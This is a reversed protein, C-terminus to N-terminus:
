DNENWYSQTRLPHDLPLKLRGCSPTRCVHGPKCTRCPDQRLLIAKQYGEKTGLSYCKDTHHGEAALLQNVQRDRAKRYGINWAEWEQSIPDYPNVDKSLVQGKGYGAEYADCISFTKSIM